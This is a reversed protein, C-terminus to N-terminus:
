YIAYKTNLYLHASALEEASVEGCAIIEAIDGNLFAATGLFNAGITIGKMTDDTGSDGTKVSSGNVYIASAAGNHIFTLVYFTAGAAYDAATQLATGNHVGFKDGVWYCLNLGDAGSAIFDHQAAKDGSGVIFFTRPEGFNGGAFDTIKQLYQQNASAFRVVPLSNLIGTKYHPKKAATGQAIDDGNGSEDAWTGVDDGDSLGTIANANYWAILNTLDTPAWSPEPEEDAVPHYASAGGLIMQALLEEWDNDGYDMLEEKFIAFTNDLGEGLNTLIKDRRAKPLERFLNWLWIPNFM